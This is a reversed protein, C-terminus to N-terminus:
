SRWSEIMSLSLSKSPSTIVSLSLELRVEPNQCFHWAGSNPSSTVIM